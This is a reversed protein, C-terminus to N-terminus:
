TSCIAILRSSPRPTSRRGVTSCELKRAPNQEKIIAAYLDYEARDKWPSKKAAGDTGKSTATASSGDKIVMAAIVRESVGAKKLAAIDDDSLAYRGPQQNVMGVITDEGIGAKVLKLITENTLPEQANLIISSIALLLCACAFVRKM